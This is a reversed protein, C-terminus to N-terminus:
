KGKLNLKNKLVDVINKYLPDNELRETVTRSAHSVTSHDRGGFYEGIAKLSMNTYNQCIFMAIQRANAIEKKRTDSKLDAISLNFHEAVSKQILEINLDVEIQKVRQIIQNLTKETMDIDIEQRMLSAKAVLSILVGQLERVNTDVNKAVYEVVENPIRIGETQMKARVISLRTDYDPVQVDAVLGWKFRSLLRDHMGKLDKPATDCTMVIQKGAQHLHNFIHFFNEQTKEKGALFQIDDVLLVDVHMYYNTFEQVSQNKLADVFQTIFLDSPVYLVFKEKYSAKIENGISHLLHTKGLGVGGHIVLPNFANAGPNQAVSFCASYALRNCEGEIFNDFSYKGSLNSHAQHPPVTRMDFPSFSQKQPPLPSHDVPKTNKPNSINITYPQHQENGKDIVISYELKGESGLESYIAKKLVNVYHEELWEYFFQSPVQITLTHGQLKVPRIPEFWTKFSQEGVSTRILRLCNKWVLVCDQTTTEIETKDFLGM